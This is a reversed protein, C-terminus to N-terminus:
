LDLRKTVKALSAARREKEQAEFQRWAAVPWVEIRNHMGCFVVEERLGLKSVLEQPLVFRGHEDPEILRASTTLFRIQAARDGEDTETDNRIEEMIAELRRQTYLRLHDEDNWHLLFLQGEKAEALVEMMHSPISVQNRSSVKHQAEGLFMAPRSPATLGMREPAFAVPVLREMSKAM